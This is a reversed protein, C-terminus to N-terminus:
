FRELIIPKLGLSFVKSVQNQVRNQLSEVLENREFGLRVVEQVIDEDVQEHSSRRINRDYLFPLTSSHLFLSNEHDFLTFHQHMHIFQVFICALVVVM